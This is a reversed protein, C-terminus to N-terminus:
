NNKTTEPVTADECAHDYYLPTKNHSILTIKKKQKMQFHLTACIENLVAM